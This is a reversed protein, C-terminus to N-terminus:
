RARLLYSTQAEDLSGDYGGDPGCCCPVAGGTRFRDLDEADTATGGINYRVVNMALGGGARPGFLLQCVRERLAPDKGTAHAFWALSTGWGQFPGSSGPPAGGAPMTLVVPKPPKSVCAM